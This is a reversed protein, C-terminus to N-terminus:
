SRCVGALSAFILFPRKFFSVTTSTVNDRRVALPETWMWEAHVLKLFVFGAKQHVFYKQIHKNRILSKLDSWVNASAM